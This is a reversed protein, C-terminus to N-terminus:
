GSSPEDGGFLREEIRDMRANMDAIKRNFDQKIEQMDQRLEQIGRNLDKQVSLASYLLFGLIVPISLSAAIVIAPAIAELPNM